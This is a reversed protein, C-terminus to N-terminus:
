RTAEHLAAELRVILARDTADVDDSLEWRAVERLLPLAASLRRVEDTTLELEIPKGTLEVPKTPGRKPLEPALAFIFADLQDHARQRVREIDSAVATGAREDIISIREHSEDM